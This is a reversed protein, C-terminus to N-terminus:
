EEYNHVSRRRSKIESRHRKADLRRKKSALSPKTKRRAKPKETAKGVLKILRDIADQRNKEQTRFRKAEIILIGEATIKKGALRILRARVEDPLSPSNNVDFRLHVATAVKNVNQGGPGSSRVFELHIEKEDIKVAKTIHIM